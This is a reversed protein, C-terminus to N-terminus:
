ESQEGYVLIMLWKVHYLFYQLVSLTAYPSCNHRLCAGVNSVCPSVVPICVIGWAGM